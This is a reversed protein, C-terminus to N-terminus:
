SSRSVDVAASLGGGAEARGRITYPGSRAVEVHMPQEVLEHSCRIRRRQAAIVALRVTARKAVAAGGEDEGTQSRLSDSDALGARGCTDFWRERVVEQAM